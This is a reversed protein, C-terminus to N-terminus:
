HMMNMKITYALGKDKSVPDLMEIPSGALNYKYEIEYGNNLKDVDTTGAASDYGAGDLEKIVHGKKDYKYAKSVKTVISSNWIGTVVDYKKEEFVESKTIARSMVDYKYIIRNMGDIIKSPGYSNPM